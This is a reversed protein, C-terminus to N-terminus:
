VQSRAVPAGGSAFGLPPGQRHRGPLASNSLMDRVVAKDSSRRGSAMIDQLEAHLTHQGKRKLASTLAGIVDAQLAVPKGRPPLAAGEFGGQAQVGTPTPADYAHRVLAMAQQFKNQYICGYLVTGYTIADPIVDGELMSSFVEWSKRIQRNRVCAQILCTYVYLNPQMGYTEEVKAVLQLAKDLSQAKGYMKVLISVTVHTPRMGQAVMQDFIEEADSVQEAKSCALLLTNFAVEDFALGQERLKRFLTVASTLQGASCSAKILISYSVVDPAVNAARMDAMVEELKMPDAIHRALLDLVSNFTVTTAAVGKEHMEKYFALAKMPLKAHAYGRILSTYVVANPKIGEKIMVRFTEEAREVEGNRICADIYCGYTVVTPAVKANRMKSWVEHCHELNGAHGFAKVLTGYTVASCEVQCDVMMNFIIQLRNLDRVSVCADLLTNFLVELLRFNTNSPDECPSGLSRPVNVGIRKILAIARDIDYSTCGSRHMGKVITSCTYHDPELGLDVLQDLLQWARKAGVNHPMGPSVVSDQKVKVTCDMITNFSIINPAPGTLIMKNLLKEARSVDIRQAYGKLLTNCSVTDICEQFTHFLQEAVEIKSSAVVLGLVTNLVLADPVVGTCKMGMLVEVAGQWDQNKTYIRLVTMYTRMSLPGMKSLDKFFIIAKKDQGCSMAAGILCIYMNRDLGISDADIVDALWLMEEYFKRRLLFQMIDVYFERGRAFGFARMDALLKAVPAKPSDKSNVISREILATYFTVANEPTLLHERLDVHQARVFREYQDLAQLGQTPSKRLLQIVLRKVEAEPGKQQQAAVTSGEPTLGSHSMGTTATTVAACFPDKKKSVSLVTGRAFLFYVHMAIAIIIAEVWTEYLAEFIMYFVNPIM